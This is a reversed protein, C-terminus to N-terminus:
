ALMAKARDRIAEAIVKPTNPEKNQLTPFLSEALRAADEYASKQGAKFISTFSLKM